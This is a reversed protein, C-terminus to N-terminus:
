MEQNSNSTRQDLHKLNNEARSIPKTGGYVKVGLTPKDPAFLKALFNDARRNFRAYVLYERGSIFAYGNCTSKNYTTHITLSKELPGKWVKSVRFTVIIRPEVKTTEPDDLYQLNEVNGRFIVDATNFAKAPELETKDCALVNASLMLLAIYTITIRM